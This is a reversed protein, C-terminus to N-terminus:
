RSFNWGVMFKLDPADGIGLKLESFFRSGASAPVGAGIIVSGGVVTDSDGPDPNEFLIGVGVGAYPRWRAGKFHYHGDFNLAITTEDDGFGLELSPDFTVDPAIGDVALQGGFVLQDPSSSFGIRPGWGGLDATAAHAAPALLMLCTCWLVRRM